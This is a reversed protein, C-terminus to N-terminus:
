KGKVSDDNEICWKLHAFIRWYVDEAASKGVIPDLHGYGEALFRRYPREGFRRRLLGYDKLTSKPDFVRNDTGSIFLIPLGELRQLNEETLLSRLDNDMCIGKTGMNVVHKMLKTHTGAFFQHINDHLAACLNDHNWLLGFAFSTRHCAISTCLDRPHGVPYFRLLIDLLRQFLVSGAMAALFEYLRILLTTKGKLSNWYGFVQNMFVSNATMGLLDCSAITGDLLGMCLAVSGQCHAIVYPKQPEKDRIYKIAAAVDLRCDFITAEQAVIPDCGWRPTLTYCRHGRQTFYDIMNCHLFPLAYLNHMAGIGTIGPLLLVPPLNAHRPEHSRQQLLPDYVELLVPVDDHAKLKCILPPNPNKNIQDVPSIRPFRVPVFPMFFFLSVHYVFSFLFALLALLSSINISTTRFARMQRQFEPLSIHLAGAGLQTGDLRTININLATTAEWTKRVSFAMTPSLLKHGELYYEPGEISLLKMHYSITSEADGEGTFINVIGQVIKLTTRSLVHCSVTGTCIGQYRSPSGSHCIDITIFMRMACSSGKGVSESLTLSGLGSNVSIYGSLTETFQWGISQPKEEISEQHDQGNRSMQPKSSIGLPGNATQDITFGSM